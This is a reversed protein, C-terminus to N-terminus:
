DMLGSTFFLVGKNSKVEPEGTDKPPTFIRGCYYPSVLDPASYDNEWDWGTNLSCTYDKVDKITKIDKYDTVM